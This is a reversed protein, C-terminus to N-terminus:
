AMKQGQLINLVLFVLRDRHGLPYRTQKSHSTEWEFGPMGRSSYSEDDLPQYTDCWLHIQPIWQTCILFCVLSPDVRAKFRLASTVLLGVCPYGCFSKLFKKKLFTCPFACVVSCITKTRMILSPFLIFIM